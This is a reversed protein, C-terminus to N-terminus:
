AGISTTLSKKSGTNSAVIVIVIHTPPPALALPPAKDLEADEDSHFLVPARLVIAFLSDKSAQDGVVREDAHNATSEFTSKTQKGPSTTPSTGSLPSGVFPLSAVRSFFNRM